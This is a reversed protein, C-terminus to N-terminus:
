LHRWTKRKWISIVAGHTIGYRRGIAMPGEIGQLSRILIVDSENLKANHHDPGRKCNEYTPPKHNQIRKQRAAELTCIRCARGNLRGPKSKLFYTNEPTFEHGNACHTKQANMAHPSVGRLCNEQHTVPELHDPNCCKRNRCLHDLSLEDPIPGKAGIYAMRHAKVNHDEGKIALRFLGYGHENTCDKWEWCGSEVVTVSRQVRALLHERSFNELVWNDLTKM